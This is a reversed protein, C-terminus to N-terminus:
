GRRLKRSVGLGALALGVLALSAPEPVQAGGTGVIVRIDTRALQTDGDFASLYIDYTGNAAPDFSFFFPFFAYNESNQVLNNAAMLQANSLGLVPEAGAGQTTGNDGYSNDPFLLVPDVLTFSRASSPDSDMGLVYRLADLKRGSTGDRDVNISFDYNWSALGTPLTYWTYTGDGNSNFTNAPAPARQHTRLGLEINNRRDVTFGGNTNGSGYIVNNTVDADYVLAAHATTALTALAALALASRLLPRPNM